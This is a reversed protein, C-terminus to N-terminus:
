VSKRKELVISASFDGFDKWLM